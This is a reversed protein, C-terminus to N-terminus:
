LNCQWCAWLVLCFSYLAQGSLSTARGKVDKGNTSMPEKESAKVTVEPITAGDSNAKIVTVEAPKASENAMMGQQKVKLGEQFWNGEQYWKTEMRQCALKKDKDDAAEHKCKKYESITEGVMILSLSESFLCDYFKANGSSSSPCGWTNEFCIKGQDVDQYSGAGRLKDFCKRADESPTKCTTLMMCPLERSQFYATNYALSLQMADTVRPHGPIRRGGSHRNAAVLTIMLFGVVFNPMAMLFM